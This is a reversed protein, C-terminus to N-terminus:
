KPKRHVPIYNGHVDKQYYQVKQVKPLATARVFLPKSGASGPMKVLQNMRITEGVAYLLTAKPYRGALPHLVQLNHPKM